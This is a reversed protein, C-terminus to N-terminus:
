TADQSHRYLDRLNSAKAAIDDLDEALQQGTEDGTTYAGICLDPFRIVDDPLNPCAGM